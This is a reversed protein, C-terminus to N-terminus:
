NGKLSNLETEVEQLEKEKAQLDKELAIRTSKVKDLEKEASAAAQKAESLKNLDDQSAYKTCGVAGLLSITFLLTLAATLIRKLLTM